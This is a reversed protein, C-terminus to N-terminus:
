NCFYFIPYNQEKKELYWRKQSLLWKQGMGFLM